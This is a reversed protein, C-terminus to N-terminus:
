AFRLISFSGHRHQKLVCVWGNNMLMLDKLRMGHNPPSTYRKLRGVTAVTINTDTAMLILKGFRRMWKTGQAAAPPHFSGDHNIRQIQKEADLVLIGGDELTVLGHVDGDVYYNPWDGESVRVVSQSSNVDNAFFYRGQDNVAVATNHTRFLRKRRESYLFPQGNAVTVFRLGHEQNWSFHRPDHINDWVHGDFNVRGSDREFLTPTEGREGFGGLIQLHEDEFESIEWGHHYRGFWRHDSTGDRKLVAWIEHGGDKRVVCQIQEPSTRAKDILPLAVPIRRWYVHWRGDRDMNALAPHQPTGEPFHLFRVERSHELIPRRFLLENFAWPSTLWVAYLDSNQKGRVAMRGTPSLVALADRNTPLTSTSIVPSRYDEGLSRLALTAAELDETTLTGALHRTRIQEDLAARAEFLAELDLPPTPM